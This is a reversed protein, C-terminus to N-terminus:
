RRRTRRKKKGGLTVQEYYGNNYNTTGDKNKRTNSNSPIQKAPTKPISSLKKIKARVDSKLKTTM